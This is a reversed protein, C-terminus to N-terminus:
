GQFILITLPARPQDNAGPAVATVTSAHLVGRPGTAAPRQNDALMQLIQMLGGGAEMAAFLHSVLAESAVAGASQPFGAREPITSLRYGRGVVTYVFESAPCYARLTRRLSAITVKLNSEHVFIDPWGAKLLYEKSLLEEKRAALALLIEMARGGVRVEEAGCMLKRRTTHLCFPGFEVTEDAEPLTTM